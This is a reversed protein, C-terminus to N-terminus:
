ISAREVSCCLVSSEVARTLATSAAVQGVVWLIEDGRVLLPVGARDARPVKRDILLDSIKKRGAALVIRDGPRPTRLIFAHPGRALALLITHGDTPPASGYQASDDAPSPGARWGAADHPQRNRAARQRWADDM